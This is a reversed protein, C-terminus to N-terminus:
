SLKPHTEVVQATGYPIFPAACLLFLTVIRVGKGAQTIDDDIRMSMGNWLPVVIPEGKGM